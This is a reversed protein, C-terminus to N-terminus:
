LFTLYLIHFDSLDHLVQLLYSLTYHYYLIFSIVLVKIFSLDHAEQSILNATTILLVMVTKM